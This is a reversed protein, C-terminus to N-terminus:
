VYNIGEASVYESILKHCSQNMRYDTDDLAIGRYGGDAVYTRHEFIDNYGGDSEPVWVGMFFLALAVVAIRLLCFGKEENEAVILMGLVIYFCLHGPVTVEQNTTMAWIFQVIASTFLMFGAMQSIDYEPLKYKGIETRESVKTHRVFYPFWFFIILCGYIFRTTSTSYPRLAIVGAMFLIWYISLVIGVTKEGVYRFKSILKMVVIPAYAVVFFFLYSLLMIGIRIYIPHKYAADETYQLLPLINMIGSTLQLYILVAAGMAFCTVCYIIVPKVVDYGKRIMYLQSLVFFFPFLFMSAYSLIAVCTALAMLLYYWKNKTVYYRCAWCIFLMIAMECM